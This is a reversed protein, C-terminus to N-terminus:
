VFLGLRLVVFFSILVIIVFLVLMMLSLMGNLLGIVLLGIFWCVVKWVRLCLVESFLMRFRIVVLCELVLMGIM